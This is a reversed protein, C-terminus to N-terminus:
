WAGVKRAVVPDIKWLARSAAGSQILYESRLQRVLWPIAAKARPGLAEFVAPDVTEPYAAEVDLLAKVLDPARPTVRVLACAADRRRKWDADKLAARIAPAAEAAAPGIRGLATIIQTNQPQGAKLRRLLAPVAPAAEPCSLECVATTAQRRLYKDDKDEMMRILAALAVQRTRLTREEGVVDQNLKWLCRAARVRWYGERERMLQLLFPVAERAATGAFPLTDWVLEHAYTPEERLLASFFALAKTSRGCAFLVSAARFAVMRRPHETLVTELGEQAPSAFCAFKGMYLVIMEAEDQSKGKLRGGLMRVTRPLPVPVPMYPFFLPTDTGQGDLNRSLVSAVVADARAAQGVPDIHLLAVAAHLRTEDSKHRLWRKLAPLLPRAAPGLEAALLFVHGGPAPGGQKMALKLVPLINARRGDLCSAALSQVRADEDRLAEGIVRLFGPTGRSSRLLARLAAERVRADRDTELAKLLGAVLACSEDALGEGPPGIEGLRRAARVRDKADKSEALVRLLGPVEM